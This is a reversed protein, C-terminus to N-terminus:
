ITPEQPCVCHGGNVHAQFLWWLWLWLVVCRLVVGCRLMCWVVRLVCYVVCLVCLACVVCKCCGM